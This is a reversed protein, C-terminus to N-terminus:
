TLTDFFVRTAIRCDAVVNVTAVSTFLPGDRRVIKVHKFFTAALRLRHYELSEEDLSLIWRQVSLEYFGSDRMSQPNELPLLNPCRSSTQKRRKTLNGGHTTNKRRKIYKESEAKESKM